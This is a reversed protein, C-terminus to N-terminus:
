AEVEEEVKKTRRRGGFGRSRMMGLRVDNTSGTVPAAAGSYNGPNNILFLRSLVVLAWLGEGSPQEELEVILNDRVDKVVGDNYTNLLTGAVTGDIPVGSLWVQGNRKQDFLTQLLQIVIPSSAAHANAGRLGVRNTSSLSFASAPVRPLGLKTVVWRSVQHSAALAARIVPTLSTALSLAIVDTSLGNEAPTLEKYHLTMNWEGERGEGIMKARYVDNVAM